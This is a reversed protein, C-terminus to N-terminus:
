AWLAEDDDVVLVNLKLNNLQGGKLSSKDSHM